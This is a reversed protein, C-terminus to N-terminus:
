INRSILKLFTARMLHQSSENELFFNCAIFTTIFLKSHFCFLCLTKAKTTQKGFNGLFVKFQRVQRLLVKQRSNLIFFDYVYLM